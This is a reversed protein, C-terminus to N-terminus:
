RCNGAPFIKLFCFISRWFSLNKAQKKEPQTSPTSSPDSAADSPRFTEIKPQSGDNYESIRKSKYWNLKDGSGKVLSYEITEEVLHDTNNATTYQFDVKEALLKLNKPTYINYYMTKGNEDTGSSAAKRIKLELNDLDMASFKKQTTWFLDLKNYKYGATLCTNNKVKYAIYNKGAELGVGTYFGVLALDPFEDLNTIKVCRKVLHEDKSITDASVLCPTLILLSFLFIIFKSKAM